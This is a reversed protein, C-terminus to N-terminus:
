LARPGPRILGVYAAYAWSAVALVILVIRVLSAVTAEPIYPALFWACLFLVLGLLLYRLWLPM